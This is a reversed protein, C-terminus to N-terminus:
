LSPIARQNVKVRAGTREREKLALTLQHRRGEGSATHTVYEVGTEKKQEKAGKKALFHLLVERERGRMQRPFLLLSQANWALSM